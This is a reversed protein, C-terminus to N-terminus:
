IRVADFARQFVTGYVLSKEKKVNDWCLQGVQKNWVADALVMNGRIDKNCHLLTPESNKHDIIHEVEYSNYKKYLNRFQTNTMQQCPNTNDYTEPIFFKINTKGYNNKFFSTTCTDRAAFCITLFVIILEMM